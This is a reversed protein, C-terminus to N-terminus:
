LGSPDVPDHPPSSSAAHVFRFLSESPILRRGRLRVSPLAGDAALRRVTSISVGRSLAAQRFSVLLPTGPHSNTTASGGRM